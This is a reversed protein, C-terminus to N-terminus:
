WNGDTSPEDMSGLVLGPFKDDDKMIRIENQLLDQQKIDWLYDKMLCSVEFVPIEFKAKTVTGAQMDFKKNQSFPVYPIKNIDFGPLDKFLTDKIAIYSTDRTILGMELAQEETLTDPATGHKLVMPMKSNNYFDILTDFSGTYRNNIKKYEIQLVKIEGLRAKIVDERTQIVKKFRVPEMISQYVEYALFLVAILLVVQILVRKINM